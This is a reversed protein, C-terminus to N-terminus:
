ELVKKCEAASDKYEFGSCDYGKSYSEFGGSPRLNYNYDAKAWLACYLMFKTLCEQQVSTSEQTINVSQKIEGTIKPKRLNLFYLASFLLVVIIISVIIKPFNYSKKYHYEMYFIKMKM